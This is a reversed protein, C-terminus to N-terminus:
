TESVANILVTVSEGSKRQVFQVAFSHECVSAIQFWKTSRPASSCSFRHCRLNQSQLLRPSGPETPSLGRLESGTLVRGSDFSAQQERYPASLHSISNRRLLM